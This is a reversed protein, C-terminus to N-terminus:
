ATAEQPTGLVNPFWTLFPVRHGVTTIEYTSGVEIDAYINAADFQGRLLLDGVEVVGCDDTYLRMSGGEGSTRDKDEVTCTRTQEAVFSQAVAGGVAGLFLAGVVTSIGLFMKDEFDM